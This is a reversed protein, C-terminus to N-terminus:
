STSYMSVVSITEIRSDVSGHDVARREVAVLSALGANDVDAINGDATVM